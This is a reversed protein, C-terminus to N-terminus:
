PFIGFAQVLPLAVEDGEEGKVRPKGQHRMVNPEYGRSTTQERGLPRDLLSIALAKAGFCHEV